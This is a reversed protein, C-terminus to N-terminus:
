VGLFGAARRLSIPRGSRDLLNAEELRRRTVDPDLVARRGRGPADRLLAEPGGLDFRAIWLRVTPRSVNLATAIHDVSNRDLWMLVIRSRGAVRVPATTARAWRELTVRADRTHHQGWRQRGWSSGEGGRRDSGM